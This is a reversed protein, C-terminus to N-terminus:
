KQFVSVWTRQKLSQSTLQSYAKLFISKSYCVIPYMCSHLMWNCHKYSLQIKSDLVACTYFIYWFKWVLMGLKCTVRQTQRTQKEGHMSPGRHQPTGRTDPKEPEPIFSPPGQSMACWRVKGLTPLKAACNKTAFFSWRLYCSDHIARLYNPTTQESIFINGSCLNVNLQVRKDLSSSFVRRLRQNMESQAKSM